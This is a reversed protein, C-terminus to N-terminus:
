RDTPLLVDFRTRGPRSSVRVEGRHRGQVIRRVIDLGLGVGQGVPKTTFFPDFIRERVDDPIGPGDDTVSVVVRDGRRATAVQLVGRGGMADVANDILHTWVQNLEGPWGAVTPLADADHREVTIGGQLRPSLVRLTDELGQRVDVEQEPAEDLRSYNRMAGVLESLRGTAEGVEAALGAATRTWALWATVASRAPAPVADLLEAVEELTVGAEALGTGLEAAAEVDHRELWSVLEDARDARALADGDAAGAAPGRAALRELAAVATGPLGLGALRVSARAQRATAADLDAAARRAAAAPNNLEHALGAAMTGLSV